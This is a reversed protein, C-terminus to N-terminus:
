VTFIPNVPYDAKCNFARLGELNDQKMMEYVQKKHEQTVNYCQSAYEEIESLISLAREASPVSIDEGNFWLVPVSKWRQSMQYMNVLGMRTEKDFWGEHENIVINNVVSSTDFAEIQFGRAIVWGATNDAEGCVALIQQIDDDTACNLMEPSMAKFIQESTLSTVELREGRALYKYGEYEDTREVAFSLFVVHQNKRNYGVTIVPPEEVYLNLTM